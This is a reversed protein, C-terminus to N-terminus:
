FFVETYKEEKVIIEGQLLVIEKIQVFEFGGLSSKYSAKNFKPLHNQLLLNKFSGV